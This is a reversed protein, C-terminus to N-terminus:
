KEETLTLIDEIQKELEVMDEESLGQEEEAPPEEEGEEEGELASVRSRLDDLAAAIEDLREMMMDLTESLEEEDIQRESKRKQKKQTEEDEDNDRLLAELVDLRSELMIYKGGLQEMCEKVSQNMEKLKETLTLLETMRKGGKRTMKGQNLPKKMFLEVPVGLKRAAQKLTDPDAPITVISWELMDWKESLIDGNELERTELPLWRISAAQLFGQNWANEVRAAFPDGKLFEFEAEIKEDENLGIRLTRGVPLGASGTGGMLPSGDDHNWLVVPNKKYNSFDGGKLNLQMIPNRSKQNAAIIVRHRGKELPKDEDARILTVMTMQEEYQNSM